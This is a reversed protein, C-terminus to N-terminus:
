RLLELVATITDGALLVVAGAAAALLLVALLVLAAVVAPSRRTRHAGRRAPQPAGGHGSLA